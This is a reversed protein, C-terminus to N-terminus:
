PASEAEARCVQCPQRHARRHTALSAAKVPKGAVMICDPRHYRSMSPSSVLAAPAPVQRADGDREPALPRPTAATPSGAAAAPGLLVQRRLRTVERLNGFLWVVNGALTVVLGGAAITTALQVRSPEATDRCVLYGAVILVLGVANVMVVSTLEGARWPGDPREGATL